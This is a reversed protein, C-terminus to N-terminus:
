LWLLLVQCGHWRLHLGVCRQQLLLPRVLVLSADAAATAAAAAAPVLRLLLVLLLPLRLLLLRFTAARHARM